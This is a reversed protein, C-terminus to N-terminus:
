GLYGNVKLRKLQRPQDRQIGKTERALEIIENQARSKDALDQSVDPVLM